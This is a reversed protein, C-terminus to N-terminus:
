RAALKVGAASSMTGISVRLEPDTGPNEALRYNIQYLGVSGPTLGAYVVTGSVSLKLSAKNVIESLYFPIEGTDPNRGTHGLGTAYIVITEGGRAPSEPTVLSNDLHTAIAFGSPLSFLAPAAEVVTVTVIPGGLSQSVVQIRVTGALQNGPVLFNVQTESVYFLPAPINDVFIRTFNLETPLFNGRIDDATLARASRSLGSGFLALMSYPAFPATSYNSANVIGAATYAPAAWVAEGLLVALALWRGSM